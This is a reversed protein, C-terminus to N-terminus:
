RLYAAIAKAGLEVGYEAEALTNLETGVELLVCKESLHQNYRGKQVRIGRLLRSEVEDMVAGLARATQWNKEWNPHDLRANSGVILLLTAANKGEATITTDAKKLGSDRHLDIILSAEPYQALMAECTKKSNAYSKYWDPSDHVTDSVVAGIGYEEGLVDALHHAVGLIQGRGESDAKGDAFSEATHTCYILVKTEKPTLEDLAVSKTKSVRTLASGMASVVGADGGFEGYFVPAADPDYTVEWANLRQEDDNEEESLKALNNIYAPDAALDGNYFLLSRLITFFPLSGGDSRDYGYGLVVGLLFFGFVFLILIMRHRDHRRYFSRFATM